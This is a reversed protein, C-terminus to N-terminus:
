ARKDNEPSRILFMALSCPKPTGSNNNLRPCHLPKTGGWDNTSWQVSNASWAHLAWSINVRLTLWRNVGPCLVRCEPRPAAHRPSEPPPPPPPSFTRHRLEIGPSGRPMGCLPSNGTGLLGQPRQPRLAVNVFTPNQLKARFQLHHDVRTVFLPRPYIFM